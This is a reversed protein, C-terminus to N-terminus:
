CRTGIYIEIEDGDEAPLYDIKGKALLYVGGECFMINTMRQRTTCRREWPTFFVIDDPSADRLEDLLDKVKM